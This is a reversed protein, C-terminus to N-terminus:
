GNSRDEDWECQKAAEVDAPDISGKNGEALDLLLPAREDDDHEDGGEEEEEGEGEEEDGGDAPAVKKGSAYDKRVDDFVLEVGEESLIPVANWVRRTAVQYLGPAFPPILTPFKTLRLEHSKSAKPHTRIDSANPCM